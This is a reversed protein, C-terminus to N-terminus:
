GRARWRSVMAALAAAIGSQLAVALGTALPPAGVSALAGDGLSGGGVATLAAAVVGLGVGSLLGTLGAVISGGGEDPFWRGLTTGAVLGALAPVAQSAFAILPVAQTDPLAALLPLAPVAGLTVGHVSVVTGAGVAFGPGAALALVAAAANPLLLLGLGVLGLAGAGAGGLSGNLRAYGATDSALAVAVVTTCLALATLAGAVVSRFLAPTPSPLRAAVDDLWGSESAAGWGAAALALVLAGATTRPYGVGAGPADLVVALLVTLLTHVAVLVATARLAPRGGSVDRARIV